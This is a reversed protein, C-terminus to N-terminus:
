NKEKDKSNGWFSTKTFKFSLWVAIPYLIFNHFNSKSNFFSLENLDLAGVLTGYVITLIYWIIIGLIFAKIWRIM